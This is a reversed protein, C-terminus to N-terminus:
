EGNANRRRELDDIEFRLDEAARRYSEWLARLKPPLKGHQREVLDPSTYGSFYYMGESEFGELVEGEAKSLRANKDRVLVRRPDSPDREVALDVRDIEVGLKAMIIEQKLM